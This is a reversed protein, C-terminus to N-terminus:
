KSLLTTIHGMKRGPRPSKGYISISTSPDLYVDHSIENNSFINHMTCPSLLKVERLPLGCAARILQEFQSVNCADMSWHGSNHPRPAIENVLLEGSNTVFFEVALIGVMDLSSAISLAIAKIEDSVHDSIEAPVLSQSLVGGSHKNQAIPFFEYSSDSSMAVIISIEKCIDLFKEVIYVCDKRLEPIIKELCSQDRILYQGKGDYGLEATKLVVPYGMSRASDRLTDMCTVERFPTVKIGLSAIHSKERIRNQAVHLAKVGPYIPMNKTLEAVASIPINEFEIIGLDVSSSFKHLTEPDTFSGITCNNTVFTAPEDPTEALVKVRYGLRYAALALMQGLQGGGLIGVMSGIPIHSTKM